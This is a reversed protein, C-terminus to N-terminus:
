IYREKGTDPSADHSETQSPLPKQYSAIQAWEHIM